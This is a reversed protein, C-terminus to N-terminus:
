NEQWARGLPEGNGARIRERLYTNEECLDLKGGDTGPDSVAPQRLRNESDGTHQQGWERANAKDWTSKTGQNKLTSEALEIVMSQDPPLIREYDQNARQGPDM